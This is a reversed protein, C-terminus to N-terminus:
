VTSAQHPLMAPVVYARKRGAWGEQAVAQLRENGRAHDYVGWSVPPTYRSVPPTIGGWSTAVCPPVHAWVGLGRWVRVVM